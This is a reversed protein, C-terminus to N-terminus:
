LNPFIERNKKHKPILPQLRPDIRTQNKAKHGNRSGVISLISSISAKKM